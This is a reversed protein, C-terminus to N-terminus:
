FILSLSFLRGEVGVELEGLSPAGSKTPEVTNMLDLKSVSNNKNM